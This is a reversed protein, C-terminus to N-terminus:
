RPLLERGAAKHEPSTPSPKHVQSPQLSPQLSHGQGQACTLAATIAPVLTGARTSGNCRQDGALSQTKGNLAKPCNSQKLHNSPTVNVKCCAHVDCCLSGIGSLLNSLSHLFICFHKVEIVGGRGCGGGKGAFVCCM